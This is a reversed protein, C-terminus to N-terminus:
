SFLRLIALQHKVLHHTLAPDFVLGVVVSRDQEASHRLLATIEAPGQQGPITFRTELLDGLHLAQGLKEGLRVSMGSLALDVLTGVGRVRRAECQVDVEIPKEEPPRYRLGDRLNFLRRLPPPLQHRLGIWDLIDLVVFTGDERAASHHAVGIAKIPRDLGEGEMNMLLPTKERVAEPPCRVLLSVRQFDADLIRAPMPTRDPYWLAVKLDSLEPLRPETM